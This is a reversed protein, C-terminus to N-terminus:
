RKKKGKTPRTSKPRSGKPPKGRNSEAQKRSPTPRGKGGAATDASKATPRNKPPTVRKSQPVPRAPKKPKDAKGGAAKDAGDRIDDRGAALDKKMQSFMGGSEGNKKAEDRAAESARQAQRGLSNDDGYFKKTIYYQQLIRLLTQFIYYFVLATLFFIQFVAFVVPLYQMVKQQTPSMTPSMAARAAVMRQQGFYLAGLGVVLLAYVIGTAPNNTIAEFPSQGLDLGLEPIKTKDYLDQFIASDRALYRPIFGHDEHVNGVVRLTADAITDADGRPRYTLGRLVRFMVIFVPMQAFIPLCSAMPNVKHEQYLKMMEENLKTRDNRYENQLRRMEPAIRQMELMGKTSKLTLPTTIAMVIVAMFAISIIYSGTFGFFWSLLSAPIEFM